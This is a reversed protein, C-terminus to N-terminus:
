TLGPIDLDSTIESMRAKMLERVKEGAANFAARVLTELAQPDNRDIVEPDIRVSVVEMNGSMEVTVMGGGVSAEVREHTFSEKLKEIRQKAETAQKLMAGLKTLDGIGKLM